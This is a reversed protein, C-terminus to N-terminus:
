RIPKIWNIFQNLGSVPEIDDFDSTVRQKRRSLDLKPAVNIALEANLSGNESAQRLIKFQKSFGYGLDALTRILDAAQNTCVRQEKIFEPSYATLALLGDDTSKITLGSEVYLFNDNFAAQSGFIVIEARRNTSIYITPKATSDVEHLYFENALYEGTVIPDDENQQSIAKFAGYRLDIEPENFFESLVNATERSEMSALAAFAHWRYSADKKAAAVLEPIGDAVGMYALAEAAHFRVELDNHSLAAQLVPTAKEGIAELQLAALSSQAPQGIQAELEALREQLQASNEAYVLQSLASAYRGINNRYVRPVKISIKRDTKPEAVGDHGLTTRYRFRKNIAQTIQLATKHDFQDGQIQLGLVRNEVVKGGAPIVAELKDEDESSNDLLSKVILPGGATAAVGGKKVRNGLNVMKRLRTNLVVGNEISTGDSESMTVARLDFRDDVQAGPPIRGEVIVLETNKDSMLEKIDNLNNTLRLERQLHERQGSEIPASGTGNLETALGIGYVKVSDLGVMGCIEGIQRPGSKVNNNAYKSINLPEDSSQGRRIINQCGVSSAIVGALFLRRGIKFFQDRNTQQKSQDTKM